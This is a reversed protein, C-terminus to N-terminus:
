SSIHAYNLSLSSLFIVVSQLMKGLNTELVIVLSKNTKKMSQKKHTDRLAM